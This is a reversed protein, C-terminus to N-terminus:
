CHLPIKQQRHTDQKLMTLAEWMVASLSHGKGARLHLVLPMRLEQTMVIQRQFLRRQAPLSPLPETYDLGCEGIACCDVNYVMVSLQGRANETLTKALRPHAGYTTIVVTTHHGVTVGSM